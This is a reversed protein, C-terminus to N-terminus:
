CHLRPFRTPIQVVGSTSVGGRIRQVAHGPDLNWIRLISEHSAGILNGSIKDFAVWWNTAPTTLSEGFEFTHICTNRSALAYKADSSPWVRLHDHPEHFIM